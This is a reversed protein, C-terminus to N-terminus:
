KKLEKLVDGSEMTYFLFNYIYKCTNNQYQLLLTHLCIVNAYLNDNVYSKYFFYHCM